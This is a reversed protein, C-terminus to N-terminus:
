EQGGLLALCPLVYYYYGSPKFHFPPYQTNCKVNLSEKQFILFFLHPHPLHHCFIKYETVFIIHRQLSVPLRFYQCVFTSSYLSFLFTVYLHITQLKKSLKACYFIGGINRISTYVFLIAIAQFFSM